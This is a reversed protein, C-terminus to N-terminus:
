SSVSGRSILLRPFQRVRPSVSLVNLLPRNGIRTLESDSLVRALGLELLNRAICVGEEKSTMVVGSRPATDPLDTILAEEPHLFYELSARECLDLVNLSACHQKTPHGPKIQIWSLQQAKLDCEGTYSISRSPVFQHWNCHLVVADSLNCFYSVYECLHWFARRQTRSPQAPRAAAPASLNLMMIILILWARLGPRQIYEQRLHDVAKFSAPEEEGKYYEEATDSPLPFPLLNRSRPLKKSDGGSHPPSCVRPVVRSLIGPAATVHSLLLSGHHELHMNAWSSASLSAFPNLSAGLPLDSVAPKGFLSTEIPSAPTLRESASAFSM